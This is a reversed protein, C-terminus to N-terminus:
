QLCLHDLLTNGSPEYVLVRLQNPPAGPQLTTQVLTSQGPQWQPAESTACLEIGAVGACVIEMQSATSRGPDRALERVLLLGASSDRLRYTVRATKWNARGSGPERGLPGTLAFGDPLPTLQWTRELDAEIQKAFRRQWDAQPSKERLIREHRSLGAVLGMVAVMLMASLTTACLVELTTFGPKATSSCHTAM